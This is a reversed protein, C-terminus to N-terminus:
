AESIRSDRGVAKQVSLRRRRPPPCTNPLASENIGKVTSRKKEATGRDVAMYMRRFRLSCSSCPTTPVREASSRQHARPPGDMDCEALLIIVSDAVWARSMCRVLSMILSRVQSKSSLNLQPRRLTRHHPLSRQCPQDEQENETKRRRQPRLAGSRDLINIVSQSSQRGDDICAPIHRGVVVVRDPIQKRDCSSGDEGLASAIRPQLGACPLTPCFTAM